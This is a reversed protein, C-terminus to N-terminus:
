PGVLVLTTLKRPLSRSRPHQLQVLLERVEIRTWQAGQLEPPRSPQLLQVSAQRGEGPQSTMGFVRARHGEQNQRINEALGRLLQTKREAELRAESQSSEPPQVSQMRQKARYGEKREELSLNKLKALFAVKIKDRLPPLVGRKIPRVIPHGDSSDPMKNWRKAAYCLDLIMDQIGIVKTISAVDYGAESKQFYYDAAAGLMYIMEPVARIYIDRITTPDGDLKKIKEIQAEIASLEQDLRKEAKNQAITDHKEEVLQTYQCRARNVKVCLNHIIPTLCIIKKEGTVGQKPDPCNKGAAELIKSWTDEQGLLASPPPEEVKDAVKSSPGPATEPSRHDDEANSKDGANANPQGNADKLDEEITHEEDSESEEVESVGKTVEITTDVTKRTKTTKQVTKSRSIAAEEPQQSASRLKRTSSRAADGAATEERTQKKPRGRKKSVPAELTDAQVGNDQVADAAANDVPKMGQTKSPKDGVAPLIQQQEPGDDFDYIGEGGGGGGAAKKSNRHMGNPRGLKKGNPNKKSRGPSTAPAVSSSKPERSEPSPTEQAAESMQVGISRQTGHAGTESIPHAPDFPSDIHPQSAEVSTDANSAATFMARDSTNENNVAQYDGAATHKVRKAARPTEPLTEDVNSVQIASHGTKLGMPSSDHTAEEAPGRTTRIAGNRTRRTTAQREQTSGTRKTKPSPKAAVGKSLNLREDRNPIETIPEDEVQAPVENTNGRRPTFQNLGLASRLGNALGGWM